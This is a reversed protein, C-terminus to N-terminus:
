GVSWAYPIEKGTTTYQHGIIACIEKATEEIEELSKAGLIVFKGSSFAIITCKNKRRIVAGPFFYPRLSVSSYPFLDKLKYLSVPSKNAIAVTATSNDVVASSICLDYLVGFIDAFDKVALPINDFSKVGTVNVHGSLFISYVVHQIKLIHFNKKKVTPAKHLPLAPTRPTKFHFKVNHVSYCMIHTHARHQASVSWKKSINTNYIINHLAHPHARANKIM